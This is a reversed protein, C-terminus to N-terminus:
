YPSPTRTHSQSPPQANPVRRGLGDIVKVMMMMMMMIDIRMIMIMM